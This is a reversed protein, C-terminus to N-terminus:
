SKNLLEDLERTRDLVILALEQLAMETVNVSGQASWAALADAILYGFGVFRGIAERTELDYTEEM